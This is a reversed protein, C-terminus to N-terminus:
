RRSRSNRRSVWAFSVFGLFLCFHSPEPVNAVNLSTVDFDFSYGDVADDNIDLLVTNIGGGGSTFQSV